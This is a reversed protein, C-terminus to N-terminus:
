NQYAVPKKELWTKSASIKAPCLSGVLDPLTDVSRKKIDRGSSTYILSFFTLQDSKLTTLRRSRAMLVRAATYPKLWRPAVQRAEPSITVARGQAIFPEPLRWKEPAFLFPLSLFPLSSCYLKMRGNVYPIVSWRRLGRLDEHGSREDMALSSSILAGELLLVVVSQEQLPILPHTM